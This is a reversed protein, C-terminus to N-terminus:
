QLYLYSFPLTTLLHGPIVMGVRERGLDISKADRPDDHNGIAKKALAALAGPRNAKCSEYSSVLQMCCTLPGSLCVGITSALLRRSFSRSDDFATVLDSSRDGVNTGPDQEVCARLSIRKQLEQIASKAAVSEISEM